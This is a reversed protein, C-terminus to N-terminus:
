GGARGLPAANRDTGAEPGQRFGSSADKHGRRRKRAVLESDDPSGAAIVAGAGRINAADDRVDLRLDAERHAADPGHCTFCNAALIPRVDRTFNIDDAAIAATTWLIVFAFILRFM